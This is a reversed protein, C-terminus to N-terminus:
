DGHSSYLLKLSKSSKVSDILSEPVKIKRSCGQSIDCVVLLVVVFGLVVLVILVVVVVVVVVLVVLANCLWPHPSQFIVVLVLVVFALIVM